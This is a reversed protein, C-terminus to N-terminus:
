ARSESTKLSELNKVADDKMKEYYAKESLCGLYKGCSVCSELYINDARVFEGEDNTIPYKEYCKYRKEEHKCELQKVKLELDEIRERLKTRM